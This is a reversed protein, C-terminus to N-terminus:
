KNAIKPLVYNLSEFLFFFSDSLSESESISEIQSQKHIQPFFEKNSNTTGEKRKSKLSLAECSVGEYSLRKIHEIDM